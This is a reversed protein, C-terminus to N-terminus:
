SQPRWCELRPLPASAPRTSQSPWADGAVRGYHIRTIGMGYDVQESVLRKRAIVAVSEAIERDARRAGM